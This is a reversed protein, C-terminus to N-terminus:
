PRGPHTSSSLAPSRSTGSGDSGPAQSLENASAYPDAIVSLPADMIARYLKRDTNLPWRSYFAMDIPFWAAVWAVIFLGETLWTAPLGHLWAVREIATILAMAAALIVLGFWLTGFAQRKLGGIENDLHRLTAKCYLSVSRRVQDVTDRRAVVDPPLLIMVRVDCWRRSARLENAMYDVAPDEYIWRREPDFPSTNTLQEISDLTVSLTCSRRLPRWAM